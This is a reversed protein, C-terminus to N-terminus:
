HHRIHILLGILGSKMVVVKVVDKIQLSRLPIRHLLAGNTERALKKKINGPCSSGLLPLMMNSYAFHVLHAFYARGLQPYVGMIKAKAGTEVKIADEVAQTAKQTTSYRSTMASEARHLYHYLPRPVFTVMDANLLVDITFSLDEAIAVGLPFAIKRGRILSRKVAMAWVAWGYRWRLMWELATDGKVCTGTPFSPYDLALTERSVADRESYNFVVVDSSSKDAASMCLEFADDEFEDDADLFMVYEGSAQQLGFNRAASVGRNTTHWVKIRGDQKAWSDAIRGTQDTSGDDIVLVEFDAYTQKLVKRLCTDLFDEVNYAPIICSIRGSISDANNM